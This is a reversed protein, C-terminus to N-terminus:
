AVRNKKNTFDNLSKLFNGDINQGVNVNSNQDRTIDKEAALSKWFQVFETQSKAIMQAEKEQEEKKKAEEEDVQKAVIELQKDVGLCKIVAEFGSSLQAIQEGQTKIIMTIDGLSKVVGTTLTSNNAKLTNLTKEVADLGAITSDPLADELVEEASDSATVAEKDAEMQKKVMAQVKKEIEELEKKKEDDPAGEQKEVTAVVPEAEPKLKEALQAALEPNTKKLDELMAMLENIEPQEM